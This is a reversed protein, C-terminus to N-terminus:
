KMYNTIDDSINEILSAREEQDVQNLIKALLLVYSVVYERKKGDNVYEKGEVVIFTILNQIIQRLDSIDLEEKM